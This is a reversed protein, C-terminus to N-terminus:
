WGRSTASQADATPHEVFDVAELIALAYRRAEGATMATCTHRGGTRSCDDWDPPPQDGPPYVGTTIEVHGPPVTRLSSPNDFRAVRVRTHVTHDLMDADDTPAQYVTRTHDFGGCAPSCWAPCPFTPTNM